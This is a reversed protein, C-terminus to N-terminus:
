DEEEAILRLGGDMVEDTEGQKEPLGPTVPGESGPKDGGRLLVRGVGQGGGQGAQEEPPGQERARAGPVEQTAGANHKPCDLLSRSGSVGLPSGLSEVVNHGM